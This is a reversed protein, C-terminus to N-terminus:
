GKDSASIQVRTAETIAHDQPRYMDEVVVGPWVYDGPTVARILYAATYTKRGYTKTTAIFRDDRMETTQFHSLKGVNNYGTDDPKIIAEIEMGAPLLDAIVALGSRTKTSSFSIKVIFREGQKINGLDALSGDMNQIRKSVKYGENVALPANVPTGSIMVSRWVPKTSKNTFVPTNAIDTGLIHSRALGSQVSLEANQAAINVPESDKLFARIALIVQAQAQTNLQNPERLYKQFAAQATELYEDQGTEKIMALLGSADRTPSQYYDHEVTKDLLSLATKYAMDARREDGMMSLATALHGWSLASRLKQSHNDSFYRMDKLSGKGNKALVYHAYAAAEAQRSLRREVSDVEYQYLYDLNPYRPMKTMYNLASLAKDLAKDSVVYDKDKARLLFDTIYVGLWPRAYRDGSAWLGFSGDSNQRGLLRDVAEQLAQKAQGEAIGPVGGLEHAYLLPMAASVTQESCGYPYRSVATAYATPDVGPTRSFSINVDVSGPDFGQLMDPDLRFAEGAQMPASTMKSVPLFASRTQIDFDSQVGYGGPGKVALSITSIGTQSTLIQQSAMKREGKDLTLTDSADAISLVGGGTLSAQYEGAVGDVNDLSITAMARDGPALFRPLSLVAPVADRVIMPKVDSGVSTRSWATAMLRLKGNFDPLKVPVMVTGGSVDLLGSYLSVVKIPAATLGEGGLSDSGSRALTPAGLNPNLLRAYDDRVTVALAKRGFYFAQPDPSKYKTVQLIGEDIAALTLYVKEGDPVNDFAVNINQTRRPQVLEPVNISVGLKQAGVDATLYTIGIARRPVPRIDSDRPTYVSLLAYVGAGVNDPMRVSIESAGKPIEVTQVSRVAQDAIVLEGMGGYPSNVALKINAGPRIDAQPGGLQIQDPADSTESGGWGVWFGMSATVPSDAAKIILRYRGWDLSRALEAGANEDIDLNGRAMEIDRSDYRYQWRGNRRYWNYHREEKVLIWEAQLSIPKGQWNVARINFGAPKGREPRNEFEPKIGIYIDQTRVPIRTSNQVYRGGPESIGAIIEARLPHMTEIGEGKISMDFKLFGDADTTGGGLDIFKERFTKDATGFRYGKLALFPNPEVRIRAEAEGSLDAGNAGYLFQASVELPRIEDQRLPANDIKIDVKLKQPVFDEVSFSTTGVRGVGDVEMIARWVGRPASKPINFAQLVTGAVSTDFRTKRFEQGNPKLYRVQGSRNELAVARSDRLMFTLNAIEGPRYVGRDAFIYADIDTQVNRGGIAFASLDLPSRGLDLMAYDKGAKTTKQGYAMLMRPSLPGKGKLLEIGFHVRGQNNTVARGLIENNNAVLDVRINRVPRAKNISRVMVDLGASSQYTTFALDTVIIWRWARTPTYDDANKRVRVAEIIYAGPQLQGITEALPFVTTVNTNPLSKVPLKGKWIQERVNSAVNDYGYFYRGEEITQGSDPNRRAIMREGIRFVEIDLEDINTTEIALGQAGIRPLIIGNGAFSIRAPKDGFSIHLSKDQALTEGSASMLGSLMTVKYDQSFGLGALCLAQGVIETTINADPEVRIYDALRLNDERKLPLNFNLCARPNQGAEDIKWGTNAFKVSAGPPIPEPHEPEPKPEPESAPRAADAVDLIQPGPKGMDALVGYGIWWALFFLSIVSVILISQRKM